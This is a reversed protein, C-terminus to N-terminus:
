AAPSTCASRPSRASAWGSAPSTPGEDTRARAQLGEDALAAIVAREMTRVFALVDDTRMIAYGVLQGPGHYTLKGGRNTRVM